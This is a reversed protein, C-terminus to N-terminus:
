SRRRPLRWAFYLLPLALLSAALYITPLAILRQLAGPALSGIGEGIMLAAVLLGAFGVSSAPWAALGFAMAYPYYISCSAGAIAYAGILGDVSGLRSLLVFSAGIGLASVLFLARRMGGGEPVLGLLVRLLTLGAWFSSLAFAARSMAAGGVHAVYIQAWSSFSGEAIAYLLVALAFPWMAPSMPRAPGDGAAAASAPHPPSTAILAAFGALLALPLLGWSGVRRCADLALPALATAAGILANLLTIATTPTRPFLLAAYPNLTALTLGFGLGLCLTEALIAAYAIPGSTFAALALLAMGVLNAILGARLLAGSGATRQLRGAAFAGIVAGVIEPFYLVGYATASVRYPPGELIKGLSPVLVFAAGQLIGAGYVAFIQRRRIM